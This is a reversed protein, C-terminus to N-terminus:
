LVTDYSGFRRSWELHKELLNRSNSRFQLLTGKLESFNVTEGPTFSHLGGTSQHMAKRIQIMDTQKAALRIEDGSFGDSIRALEEMNELPWTRTAPLYQHILQVRDGETPLGVLIKQEFRRLFAEDILWPLNTNCLLFVGNYSSAELGDMLTLLENKFRRSSEYDLSDRSTTLGEIEDIFIISPSHQRAVEFLCRIYKESEGRWKSTVSSSHVNFFTVRGACETALAKALLTKGTGPPGHLLVSRWPRTMQFLEPRELPLIVSERLVNKALLAGQVSNWTTTFKERVITRSINQVIEKWDQPFLDYDVSPPEQMAVESVPLNGTTSTIKLVGEMDMAQSSSEVSEKRKVTTTRQGNIGQRGPPRGDIRKLIKPKKGFKIQFLSCYELYMSDLDINDCVQFEDDLKYEDQLAKQTRPLYDGM